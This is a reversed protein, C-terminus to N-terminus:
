RQDDRTEETLLRVLKRLAQWIGGLRRLAGESAERSDAEHPFTLDVNCFQYRSRSSPMRAHRRELIRHSVHLDNASLIDLSKGKKNM